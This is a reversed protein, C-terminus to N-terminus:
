VVSSARSTASRLSSSLMRFTLLTMSPTTSLRCFALSLMSTRIDSYRSFDSSFGSWVTDLVTCFAEVRRWVHVRMRDCVSCLWRRMRLGCHCPADCSTAAISSSSIYRCCAASRRAASSWALLSAVALFISSSRRRASAAGLGLELPLPLTVRPRPLV